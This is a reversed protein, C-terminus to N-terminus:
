LNFREDPTERQWCKVHREDSLQVIGSASTPHEQPVDDHTDQQRTGTFPEHENDQLRYNCNPPYAFKHPPLAV